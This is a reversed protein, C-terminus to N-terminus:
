AANALEAALRNEVDQVVAEMAPNLLREAFQDIELTLEETTVPFSVDLITDLRVPFSTERPDQLQIAQARDFVNATFTAANRVNVTDGVKGAFSADYDRYVLGGLSIANYLTALARAAIVTPKILEM